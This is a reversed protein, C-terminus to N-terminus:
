CFFQSIELKLNQMLTHGTYMCDGAVSTLNTCAHISRSILRCKCCHILAKGIRSVFDDDVKQLQDFKKLTPQSVLWLFRQCLGKEVNPQLEILSRAVSPQIFGGLTIGTRTINFNADGSVSFLTCFFM